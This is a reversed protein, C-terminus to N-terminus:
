GSIRHDVMELIDEMFRLNKEVEGHNLQIKSFLDELQLREEKGGSRGVESFAKHHEKQLRDTENRGVDLKEVYSLLKENLQKGMRLRDILYGIRQNCLDTEILIQRVEQKRQEFGLTLEHKHRRRVYLFSVISIAVAILSIFDSLKM